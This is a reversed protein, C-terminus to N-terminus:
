NELKLIFSVLDDAAHPRALKSMAEKKSPLLGPHEFVSKLITKAQPAEKMAFSANRSKMIEANRSEQGPIPDLIVMPTGKALSETTTAGGPKAIMLDSAEMLDSMFNIFGFVHVPFSFKDAELEKKLTENQGCVVFCQIKNKFEELEHLIKQHPGLGFSGSTLLLTFRKPDFHHRALIENRRGTPKFASDVPIGGTIIQHDPVGRKKLEEQTDSSMVWYFDTGPNVWFTHPLFDTIVTILKASILGKQKATAFLEATFFHTCVLVDPKEKIVFDLIKKGHFRNILGRLGRLPNYVKQIDLTEYFWGWVAPLYKVAYFYTAPYSKKFILPTMDLSDFVQVDATNQGRENFAKAIVEAVKKHGHGATAHFIFVKKM